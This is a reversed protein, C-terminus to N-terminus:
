NFELLALVGTGVWEPNEMWTYFDVEAAVKWPTDRNSRSMWEEATNGKCDFVLAPKDQRVGGVTLTGEKGILGCDNVAVLTYQEYLDGQPLQGLQQRYEVTRVTPWKAYASLVGIFFITIVTQILQLM